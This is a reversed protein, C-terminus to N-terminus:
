LIKIHYLAQKKPSEMTELKPCTQKLYYCFADRHVEIATNKATAAMNIFLDDDGGPISNYSSFGKHRFFVSRKYSLNRGVGMYPIGALAYSM